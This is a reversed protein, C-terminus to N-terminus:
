PAPRSAPAVPVPPSRPTGPSVTTTPTPTPKPMVPIFRRVAGLRGDATHGAVVLEYGGPASGVTFPLMAKGDAGVIIVPQWLITDPADGSEPRPAAYERVVLPPVTASATSRLQQAAYADIDQKRDMRALPVAPVTAFKEAPRNFYRDMGAAVAAARDSAFRAASEHARKISEMQEETRETRESPIARRSGLNEELEATSIRKDKSGDNLRHPTWGESRFGPVKFPLSPVASPPPDFPLPQMSKPPGGPTPPGGTVPARDPLPAGGPAALATTTGGVGGLKVGGSKPLHPQASNPAAQQPPPFGPAPAGFSTGNFSSGSGGEETRGLGGANMKSKALEATADASNAALAVQNPEAGESAGPSTRTQLPAVRAEVKSQGMDSRDGAAAATVSDSWGSAITLFGALGVSGLTSFGLPFRTSSRTVAVFGCGLALGTLGAVGFWVNARFRQLPERASQVRAAATEADKRAAEAAEAARATAAPDLASERSADLAAKAQAAARIAAEYLPAYKQNLALADRVPSPEARTPYQGNQVLLRSMEPNAARPPPPRGPLPPQAPKQEVFRRWGQTGLLLDLAEGAKPHTTLLFDAYELSDPNEVEGALLFHTPMLRDKSGPAAGTNVAAAWLVAAAPNKKEDTASISLTLASGSVSAPEDPSLPDTRIDLKLLEGPKRFVLREAVPHLDKKAEGPRVEPEEFCTIRVVGGRPDAGGMLKLEQPVEPAITATQMDSLKGRTYAGVVLTRPRDVSHLLVRFPQGPLTVPDLVSMAVGEAVPDPLM